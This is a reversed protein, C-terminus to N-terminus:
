PVLPCSRTRLREMRDCPVAIVRASGAMGMIVLLLDGIPREFRLGEPAYLAQEVEGLGVKNRAADALGDDTWVYEREVM